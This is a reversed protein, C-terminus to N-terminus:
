AHSHKDMIMRLAKQAAIIKPQIASFKKDLTEKKDHLIQANERTMTAADSSYQKEFARIDALAANFDELTEAYDLIKDSFKFGSLNKTDEWARTEFGVNIFQRQDIVYYRELNTNMEESLVLLFNKSRPKKIFPRLLASLM